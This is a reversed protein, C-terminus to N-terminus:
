PGVEMSAKDQVHGYVGGAVQVSSMRCGPRPEVPQGSICMGGPMLQVLALGWWCVTGLEDQLGAKSIWGHQCSRCRGQCSSCRCGSSPVVQMSAQDQVHACVGGAGQVSSM